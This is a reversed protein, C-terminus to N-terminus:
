TKLVNITTELPFVAENPLMDMVKYPVDNEKWGGIYIQGPQPINLFFNFFANPEKLYYEFNNMGNNSYKKM